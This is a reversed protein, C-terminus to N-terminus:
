THLYLFLLLLFLLEVSFPTEQETHPLVHTFFSLM